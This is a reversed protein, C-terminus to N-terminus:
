ESEWGYILRVEVPRGEDGARMIGQRMGETIGRDAYVVTAEAAPGWALGAAIGLGRQEPDNDDLVGPQTYLLHSAMPAEGRTLSHAMAERAYRINEAVEAEDAGAFPSELIVRRM